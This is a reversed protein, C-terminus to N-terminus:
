PAMQSGGCDNWEQHPVWCVDGGSCDPATKGAPIDADYEEHNRLFNQECLSDPRFYQRGDCWKKEFLPVEFGLIRPKIEAKGQMFVPIFQCAPGSTYTAGVGPGFTMKALEIGLLKLGITPTDFKVEMGAAISGSAGGPEGSFDFRGVKHIIYEPEQNPRLNMEVGLEVDFGLGARASAGAPLIAKVEFGAGLELVAALPYAGPLYIPISRPFQSKFSPAGPLGVFAARGRIAIRPFATRMEVLEQGMFELQTSGSFQSTITGQIVLNFKGEGTKKEAGVEFAAVGQSPSNPTLKFTWKIGHAEAEYDITLAQRLAMLPNESEATLTGMEAALDINQTFEIQGNEIVDTLSGPEAGVTLRGDQENLSTVRIVTKNALFLTDGIELEAVEAASADFIYQLPDAQEELVIELHRAEEIVKASPVYEVEYISVEEVQENTEVPMGLDTMFVLSGGDEAAASGNTKSDTCGILTLALLAVGTGWHIASSGYM